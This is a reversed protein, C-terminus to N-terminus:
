SAHIRRAIALGKATDRTFVSASLGYETDNALEVAHEADRAVAGITSDFAQAVITSLPLIERPFYVKKLMHAQNLLSLASQGFANSFYTWPVLAALSVAMAGAAVAFAVRRMRTIM